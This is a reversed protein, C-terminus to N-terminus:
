LQVRSLSQAVAFGAANGGWEREIGSLSRKWELRRGIKVKM